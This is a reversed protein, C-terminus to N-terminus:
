RDFREWLWLSFEEEADLLKEENYKEGGIGRVGQFDMFNHFAYNNGNICVIIPVHDLWIDDSFSRKELFEGDHHRGKEDIILIPIEKPAFPHDSVTEVSAGLPVVAIMSEACYPAGEGKIIQNNQFPRRAYRKKQVRIRPIM